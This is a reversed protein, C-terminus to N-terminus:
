NMDGGELMCVAGDYSKPNLVSLWYLVICVANMQKCSTALQLPAEFECRICVRSTLAPGTINVELLMVVPTNKTRLEM